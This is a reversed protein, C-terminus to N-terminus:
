ADWTFEGGHVLLFYQQLQEADTFLVTQSSLEDHVPFHLMASLPPERQCLMVPRKNWLGQKPIALVGSPLSGSGNMTDDFVPAPHSAKYSYKSWSGFDRLTMEQAVDAAQHLRKAASRREYLVHVHVGTNVLATVLPEFDLDGAVITAHWINKNHPGALFNAIKLGFSLAVLSFPCDSKPVTGHWPAPM